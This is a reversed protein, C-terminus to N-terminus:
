DLEPVKLATDVLPSPADNKKCVKNLVKSAAKVM